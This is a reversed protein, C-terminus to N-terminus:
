AAAMAPAAVVPIEFSVVGSRVPGFRPAGLTAALARAGRNEAFATACFTTIGAQAARRAVDALLATGVGRRQYGDLVTVALEASSRDDRCRVYRAVALLEGSEAHSAGVAVREVGDLEDVWAFLRPGPKVKSLFRAQITADSLRRFGAEVRDRDAPGISRIRLLPPHM